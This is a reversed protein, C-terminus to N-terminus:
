VETKNNISELAKQEADRADKQSDWLAQFDEKIYKDIDPRSRSFIKVGSDYYEVATVEAKWHEIATVLENKEDVFRVAGDVYYIVTM